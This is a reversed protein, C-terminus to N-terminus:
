YADSSDIGREGPNRGKYAPAPQSGYFASEKQACGM